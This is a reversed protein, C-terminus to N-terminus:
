KFDIYLVVIYVLELSSKISENMCLWVHVYYVYVSNYYIYDKFCIRSLSCIDVDM